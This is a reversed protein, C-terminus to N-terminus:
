SESEFLTHIIAKDTADSAQVVKQFGFSLAKQKMKDNIVCLTKNFLWSQYSPKDFLTVLHLFSEFSTCVITNIPYQKLIEITKEMPHKIPKRRYCFVMHVIAQRQQLNESLWPKPNEGCILVITQHLIPQLAPLALIGESNFQNPTMVNAINKELLANKTAPGIAIIKANPFDSLNKKSFFNDVANQSLFIFYDPKIKKPLSFILPEIELLPFSVVSGGKQEIWQTLHQSQHAPRTNLVTLM